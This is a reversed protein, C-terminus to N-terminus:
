SVSIWREIALQVDETSSIVEARWGRLRAAEVNERKDDVFLIGSSQVESQSASCGLEAARYIQDDPKMSAVEYSLIVSDFKRDLLPHKTDVLFRWHSECTNSLIGIPMGRQQLGDLVPVMEEIPHFMDAAALAIADEALDSTIGLADSVRVGFGKVSVRGHEFDDQLGSDYIASRAAEAKVGVLKAVNQCAVEPDFSFLVNGLDFYVFRIM